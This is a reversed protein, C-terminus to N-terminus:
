EQREDLAEGPQECSLAIKKTDVCVVPRIGVGEAGAEMDRLLASTYGNSVYYCNSSMDPVPDRLWWYYMEIGFDLSFMKYWKAQDQEAAQPTPKTRISVDAEMMWSLEEESLLYVLDTSEVQGGDRANGNTVHKTPLISAREKATFGTLFGPESAYGNKKACMASAVPGIGDYVVNERDSNLWARLDSKAWCSDGRVYAQLDLDHDAETEHVSWYSNGDDDYNFSGSDAASFAKMTLIYEAILVAAGDEEVQIVRWEIPENLYTGFWVSDGLKPLVAKDTQMGTGREHFYMIICIAVVTIVEIVELARKRQDITRMLSKDINKESKEKSYHLIRM